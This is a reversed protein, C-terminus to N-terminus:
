VVENSAKKKTEDKSRPHTKLYVSRLRENTVHTYIQTTSLSSHGLLEQVTKLDAGENLLHTAFTHRLTHPTVKNKISAHSIVKDLVSRLGDTTLPNGNIGILLYSSKKDSLLEKREGSLYKDLVEEAYEGFYVIRMKQGKGMVRISRDSKNIDQLEINILESARLGTAYLMEIILKNRVGYFEDEDISDIIKEYEDYYIFNPLKRTTKPNRMSKFVNSEVVGERLLFNYFSRLTSMHRSVTKNSLAGLEKLYERAELKTIKQYDVNKRQIYDDFSRLDKEYSIVTHPSYRCEKELYTLFNNITKIKQDIM